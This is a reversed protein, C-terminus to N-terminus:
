RAVHHVAHRGDHEAHLDRRLAYGTTTAVGPTSCRRPRITWAGQSLVGYIVFFSQLLCIPITALRTYQNIKRQGSPGEKSLKELTPVVKVLLSFIISASIYPMVGLSFITAQQLQAGTLVNMM